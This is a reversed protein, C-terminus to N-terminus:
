LRRDIWAKADEFAVALASLSTSCHDGPSLSTEGKNAKTIKWSILAMPRLTRAALDYSCALVITHDKYTHVM